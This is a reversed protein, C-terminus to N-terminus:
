KHAQFKMAFFLQIANLGLKLFGLVIDIHKSIPEPGVQECFEFWEKHVCTFFQLKQGKKFFHNFEIKSDIIRLFLINERTFISRLVM